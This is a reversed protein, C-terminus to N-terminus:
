RSRELTPPRTRITLWKRLPKPESPARWGRDKEFSFPRPAVRPVQAPPLALALEPCAAVLGPAAALSAAVRAFAAPPTRFPEPRSACRLGGRPVGSAPRFLMLLRLTQRRREAARAAPRPLHPSACSGARCRARRPNRADSIRMGNRGSRRGARLPISERSPPRSHRDEDPAAALRLRRLDARSGRRKTM